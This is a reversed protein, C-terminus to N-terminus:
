GPGHGDEDAYPIPDLGEVGGALVRDTWEDGDWYRQDHHGLPDHYWGAAVDRTSPVVRARAKVILGLLVFPVGFVVITFVIVVPLTM